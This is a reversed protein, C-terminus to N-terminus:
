QICIPCFLSGIALVNKQIETYITFGEQNEKEEKEGGCAAEM